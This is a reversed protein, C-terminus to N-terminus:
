KTVNKANLKLLHEVLSLKSKVVNIADLKLSAMNLNTQIQTKWKTIQYRGADIAQKIALSELLRIATSDLNGFFVINGSNDIGM